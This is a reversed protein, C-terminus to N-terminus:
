MIKKSVVDYAEDRKKVLVVIILRNKETMYIIIYKGAKFKFFGKWHAKLPEGLNIPDKALYNEVKNIIDKVINKPIRELDSVADEHWEVEYIM